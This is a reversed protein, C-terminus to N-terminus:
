LTKLDRTMTGDGEVAIVHGDYFKCWEYENPSTPVFDWGLKELQAIEKQTM